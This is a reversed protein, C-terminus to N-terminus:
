GSVDQESDRFILKEALRSLQNEIAWVKRLQARHAENTKNVLQKLHDLDGQDFLAPDCDLYIYRETAIAIWGERMPDAVFLENFIRRWATTAHPSLRFMMEDQDSLKTEMGSISIRQPKEERM